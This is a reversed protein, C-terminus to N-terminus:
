LRCESGRSWDPNKRARYRGYNRHDFQGHRRWRGYNWRYDRHLLCHCHTVRDLGYGTVGRLACEFCPAARRVCGPGPCAMGVWVTRAGGRWGGCRLGLVWGRRAARDRRVGDGRGVGAGTAASPNQRHNVYMEQQAPSGWLAFSNSMWSTWKLNVTVLRGHKAMFGCSHLSTYRTEAKEDNISVVGAEACSDETPISRRSCNSLASRGAHSRM